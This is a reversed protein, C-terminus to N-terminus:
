WDDEEEGPDRDMNYEDLGEEWGEEYGEHYGDKYAQEMRGTYPCSDDYSDEEENNLGDEEGDDFGHDLGEQRAEEITTASFHPAPVYPEIVRPTTDVSYTREEKVRDETGSYLPAIEERSERTTGEDKGGCRGLIAVMCIIAFVVILCGCGGKGSGSGGKTSEMIESFIVFDTFSM